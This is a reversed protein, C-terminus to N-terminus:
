LFSPADFSSAGDETIRSCGEPLERSWTFTM